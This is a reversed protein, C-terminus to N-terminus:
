LLYSKELQENSIAVLLNDLQRTTLDVGYKEKIECGIALCKYYFIAYEEDVNADKIRLKIDKLSGDFLQNIASVARSDYIFFLSPLHFHLYKSCFSRKELLTMEKTLQTLCAHLSLAKMTVDTSDLECINSVGQSLCKLEALKSDLESAKFGEYVKGTYFVDNPEEANKRREIAAAYSRGILWVKALVNEIKQHDFNDRCLSYLTENGLDWVSSLSKEILEKSIILKMNYYKIPKVQLFHASLCIVNIITM